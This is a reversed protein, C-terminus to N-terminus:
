KQGTRHAEADRKMLQRIKFGLFVVIVVAIAVSVISGILVADYHMQDDGKEGPV